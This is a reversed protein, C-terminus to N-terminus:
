CIGNIYNYNYNTNIRTTIADYHHLIEVPEAPLVEVHAEVLLEGGDELCGKVEGKEEKM